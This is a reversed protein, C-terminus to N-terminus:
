SGTPLPGQGERLVEVEDETFRLVTSPEPWVPGADILLEVESRYGVRELLAEIREPLDDTPEVFVMALGELVSVFTDPTM